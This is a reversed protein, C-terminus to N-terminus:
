CELRFGTCFDVLAFLDESSAILDLGAVQDPLHRANLADMVQVLDSDSNIYRIFISAIAVFIALLIWSLWWRLKM